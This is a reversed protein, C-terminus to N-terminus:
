GIVQMLVAPRSQSSLMTGGLIALDGSPHRVPTRVVQVATEGPLILPVSSRKGGPLTHLAVSNLLTHGIPVTEFPDSPRAGALGM